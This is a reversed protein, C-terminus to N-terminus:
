KGKTRGFDRVCDQVLAALAASASIRKSRHKRLCSSYVGRAPHRDQICGVRWRKLADGSYGIGERSGPRWFGARALEKTIEPALKAQEQGEDSFGLELVAAARAQICESRSPNRESKKKRRPSPVFLKPLRGDNADQLATNLEHWLINPVIGSRALAVFGLCLYGMMYSRMVEPTRECRSLRRWKADVDDLATQLTALTVTDIDDVRM